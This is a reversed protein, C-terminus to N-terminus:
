EDAEMIRTQDTEMSLRKKLMRKLTGQSIEKGTEREIESLQRHPFKPNRLGIELAKAQEQENLIPPRGSREQDTLKQNENWKDIWLCVTTRHVRCIQAIQDVPHKQFSLLIAQSRNRIRFNTATQYNELLKQYDQDSLAKVFKNPMNM